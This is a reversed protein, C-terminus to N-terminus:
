PYTFFKHVEFYNVLVEWTNFTALFPTTKKTTKYFEYAIVTIFSVTFIEYLDSKIAPGSSIFSCSM